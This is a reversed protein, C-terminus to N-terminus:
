QALPFVELKGNRYHGLNGDDFGLWIGGTPDAALRRVLPVRDRGLEEQVRMDRIRFLKRDSSGIGVSVWVNHELDETIAPPAGRPTGDLRRVPRFRGREYVTLVNEFGVWLRREHDQWIAAVGSAPTSTVNDGRLADLSERNGIWVTGDDSAF